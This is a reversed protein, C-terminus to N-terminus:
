TGSDSGRVGGRWDSFNEENIVVHANGKHQDENIKIEQAVADTFLHGLVGHVLEVFGYTANPVYFNLLGCGRLTNGADFGSLTVVEVGLEKAAAVGRLINESMGSSSIAILVDGKQGWQKIPGAYVNEYGDDNTIATLLALDQFVMAKIGDTKVLDNHLHGAISASGGNGIVMVKGDSAKVKLLLAVAWQCGQDFSLTGSVQDTVVVQELLKGLDKMYQSAYNVIM